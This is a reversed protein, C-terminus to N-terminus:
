PSKGQTPPHTLAVSFEWGRNIRAILRGYPLGGIRAWEALTHIEGDHAVRRNRRTNNHQETWTAWRCTAKSYLLGNDIRDLSHSESPRAGMDKIFVSFEKWEDCVRVGRGGYCDWYRHNPNICRSHMAKWIHYESKFLKHQTPM